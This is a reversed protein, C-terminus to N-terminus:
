TEQDSLEPAEPYLPTQELFEDRVAAAVEDDLESLAASEDPSLSDRLEQDSDAIPTFAVAGTDGEVREYWRTRAWVFTRGESPAQASTTYVRPRAGKFLEEQM